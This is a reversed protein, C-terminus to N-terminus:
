GGRLELGLGVRPSFRSIEWDIRSSEFEPPDLLSELHAAATFDLRLTPSVRWLAFRARLGLAAGARSLDRGNQTRGNSVENWAFRAWLLSGVGALDISDGRGIVFAGELGYTRRGLAVDSFTARGTRDSYLDALLAVEIRGAGAGMRAGIGTTSALGDWLQQAALGAVVRPGHRPPAELVTLAVPAAPAAHATTAAIRDRRTGVVGGDLITKFVRRLRLGVQELETSDGAKGERELTLLHGPGPRAVFVHVARPEFWLVVDGRLQRLLLDAAALREPLAGELGSSPVDTLTVGLDSAHGRVRTAIALDAEATVRVLVRLAPAASAGSIATLTLGLLTFLVSPAFPAARAGAV